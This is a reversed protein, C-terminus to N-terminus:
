ANAYGGNLNAGSAITAIMRQKAEEARQRAIATLEEPMAANNQSQPRQQQQEVLGQLADAQRKQQLPVNAAGTYSQALPVYPAQMGSGAGSAGFDTILGDEENFRAQEEASDSIRHGEKDYVYAM